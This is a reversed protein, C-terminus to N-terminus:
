QESWHENPASSAQRDTDILLVPDYGAAVAVASLYVATTSKGVGGKLNSVVLNMRANWELGRKDADM